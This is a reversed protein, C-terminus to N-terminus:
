ANGGANLAGITANVWDYWNEYIDPNPVASNTFVDISLMGRAWAQWDTNSNPVELGNAAYHECMLDAWSEFTDHIRPDFLLVPQPATTFINVTAVYM